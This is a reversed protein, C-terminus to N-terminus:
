PLRGESIADLSLALPLTFHLLCHIVEQWLNEVNHVEEVNRLLVSCM